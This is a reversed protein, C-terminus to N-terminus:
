KKLKAEDVMVAYIYGSGLDVDTRVVGTVLVIDGIRAEDHTTVVVDNSSDSASGTGDRLHVWNKGLVGPTYKVVKGRVVVTKGNLNTKATVIEAVTRADPGAAKPVKVDTIPPSQPMSAHMAAVSTSGSASGGLTGFLIRDFTKGLTKSTFQNMVTVNEITVESGRAVPAKSVAAWVEGDRTKLRLYTYADVDKVELVEGKVSGGAPPAAPAAYGMAALLMLLVAMFTRM